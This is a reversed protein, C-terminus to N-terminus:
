VAAKRRAFTVADDLQTWAAYTRIDTRTHDLALVRDLLRRDSALDQPGATTLDRNFTERDPASKIELRAIVTEDSEAEAVLSLFAEPELCLYILLRRDFGSNEGYWFDGLTGANVARAKDIMRALHVLGGVSEDFVSRPPHRTLDTTGYSAEDDLDLLDFWTTIDIRGPAVRDRTKNFVKQEHGKAPGRAAIQANFATVGSSSKDTNASVWDTLELDNPNQWAAQLYNEASFGLYETIAQDIPCNYIYDNLKGSKDARAKDAMRALGFVGAVSRDYPSRPARTTLDVERFTGWDDLEISGFVTTPAVEPRLREVREKLRTMGAEDPERELHHANFDAIDKDTLDSAKRIWHALADDNHLDAAEAFDDADMSLFELTILDLGSDNGYVFDGLTEDVYARAKDTLRAVGVIGAISANSPRRPPQRILDM